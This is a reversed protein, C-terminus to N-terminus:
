PAPTAAVETDAAARQARSRAVFPLAAVQVVSSILFSAPYGWVDAARGLLPQTVIGGTNGM